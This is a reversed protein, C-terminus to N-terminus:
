QTALSFQDRMVLAEGRIVERIDWANDIMQRSIWRKTSYRQGRANAFWIFVLDGREDLRFWLEGFGLVDRMLQYIEIESM